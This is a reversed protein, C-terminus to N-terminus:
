VSHKNFYIEELDFLDLVLAVSGDGMITAGSIGKVNRYHSELSKVVIQRCDLVEDVLLGFKQRGTDLFVVIEGQDNINSTERGYVRSLDMIPLYKGRFNYLKEDGGFSRMNGEDFRETGVLGWLPMLYSINKVKFHLADTLAFTLPIALTFTSGKDKATEIALFGGLKEVATKVVDMGVGRGSIKTVSSTTSFGPNCIINALTKNDIEDDPVEMEMELARQRIKEINLGGGDDSIQVFIQGGKQYAKFEIIGEASKGKEVREDPLEIGHDVCNRVLHKLPDTICEIVEKDLETDTGSMIAKIQKNQDLATDRAIRQFRQFTGELSFMRIQAVREQFERNIKLLNELEQELDLLINPREEDSFISQMRSLGVGVEESLNVLYNIKAVDVRISTKRYVTRSKEQITIATQLTENDIKKEEVLIEGIKKQKKLANELDNKSIDKKEVLAEGIPMEGVKLDIGDKYRDTIEEIEINNDDKVFMFVNEIEQFPAASKLIIRWSIYLKYIDIKEYRPIESIDSVVEVFEGIEKLNLFLLLPDIGSEFLNKRFILDINYYYWKEAKGPIDTITEPLGADEQPAGEMGLFRNVQAKKTELVEPEISTDGSACKDVMDRIFDIAELLFSILNKTIPLKGDRLRDLLNELLHSYESIHDFGVMASGSKLTHVARFLEELDPGAEPASELHLLSEESTKILDETEAFFIELTEDHENMPGVSTEKSGM